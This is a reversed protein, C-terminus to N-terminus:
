DRGPNSIMDGHGNGAVIVMVGRAGRTNTLLGGMILQNGQVKQGIKSWWLPYAYQLGSTVM